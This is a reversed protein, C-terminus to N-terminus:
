TLLVTVTSHQVVPIFRFGKYITNRQIYLALESGELNFFTCFLFLYLSSFPVLLVVLVLICGFGGDM